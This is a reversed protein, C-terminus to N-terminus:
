VFPRRYCIVEPSVGFVRALERDTAHPYKDRYERLFIAPVLLNDAFVNAELEMPMAEGACTNRLLVSYNKVFDESLHHELLYHGLEHAVTFNQQEPSDDANVIIKKDAIDIYGAVCDAHSPGFGATFVGFGYERALKVAIVPPKWIRHTELIKMTMNKIREIKAVTLLM